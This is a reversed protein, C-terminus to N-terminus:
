GRPSAAKPTKGSTSKNSDIRAARLDIHDSAHISIEAASLIEVNDTANISIEASSIIELKGDQGINLETGSVHQLRITKQQTNIFFLNNGSDIFGYANPYDELLEAPISNADVRWSIYMANYLSDDLFTVLVRSGIQPISISGAAGTMANGSGLMGPLAWPLDEDSINEHLINVRIKVRLLKDPDNNDIVTGSVVMNKISNTELLRTTSRLSM